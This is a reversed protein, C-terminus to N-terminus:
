PLHNALWRVVDMASVVGVLHGDNSVVPLRELRHTAMLRAVERVTAGQPATIMDTIMADEVELEEAQRLRALTSLFVVGVLVGNDDVVPASTVGATDLVELGKSVELDCELFKLEESILDDCLEHGMDQNEETSSQEHPAERRTRGAGSSSASPESHLM